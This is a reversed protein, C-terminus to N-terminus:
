AEISEGLKLPHFSTDPKLKNETMQYIRGLIFDKLIADHVPIAKKPKIKQCFAIADVLRLWPGAVPLFLVECPAQTRLSDGPHLLKNNILFALNHPCETPIPEHPAELAKITFEAVTKTENERIPESSLGEQKLLACIEENAVIQAQKMAAFAKLAEPHYHDLHKHTILIADVPGIDEPRVKQEIFSFAGPDILLKKGNDELLICSHIYKKIIM